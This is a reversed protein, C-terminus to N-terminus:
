AVTALPTCRDCRNCPGIPEEDPEFYSLMRRWYCSTSEAYDVMQQLRVEQRSRRELSREALRELQQRPVDAQLLRWRSRGAPAVIGSGALLQLCRMLKARGHPSSKMIEQVSCLREERRAGDGESWAMQLAHHANVLDTSDLGGSRAFFRQLQRDAPAYLLTCHAPAGDRGSRGFEQYYSELSGPMHYHIVQRIDPKDIGLGFASTAVMVRVAGQMFQQQSQTRDATRMRGHYGAADLGWDCLTQTLRDVANTTAAYCIAAGPADQLLNRLHAQKDRDDECHRISLHINPRDFGTCIIEPEDLNLSEQIEALTDDTATATLALVPPSGLQMRVWHLGLYDPRFDHGWQSVCHAEDVVMMDVGRARLVDCLDTAQLREPTTFVFETSGDTISQRAARIEAARCSSNLVVAHINRESLQTAQDAALAILPSVVVTVGTLELAPLQYCLSKGSGTPMIVVTDRGGLAAQVAQVQGPRFRRFGFHEQLKGRLTLMNM